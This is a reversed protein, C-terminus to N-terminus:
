DWSVRDLYGIRHCSTPENGADAPGQQESVDGGLLTCCLGFEEVLQLFIDGIWIVKALEPNSMWLFSSARREVIKIRARQIVDAAARNRGRRKNSADGGRSCGRDRSHLTGAVVCRDM